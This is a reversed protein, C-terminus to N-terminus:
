FRIEKINKLLYFRSNKPNAVMSNKNFWNLALKCSEELKVSIENTTSGYVFITNDDAFNCVDYGELFLLLDNLFINFLIPGLISGRPVGLLILLWDSLCSGVRVRQKRNTLYSLLFRLSKNDLGYAALKAILLDHPLTDYAKSLDMLVAGIKSSADLKSYWNNLLNLLAHQSSYKKRFGCLFKSLKGEFFSSLQKFVLKEFVKSIVPLLSIPRYNSKDTKDDKKHIPIIEAWTLENPFVNSEISPISVNQLTNQYLRYNLILLSYCQFLSIEVQKKKFIKQTFWGSRM